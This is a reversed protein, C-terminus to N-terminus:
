VLCLLFVANDYSKPHFPKNKDDHKLIEPSNYDQEQLM